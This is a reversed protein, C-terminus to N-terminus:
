NLFGRCTPAGCLCPIKDDELPFKYDYTIEENVGITQKSYIVIKKQSEITIVKAYCNPNCSHNIFRALNGCKTADIINELDIRFLYSSGIGIAEYKTERLDAISHRVMQGVYEIVMEDAAIPEMAFLGWDHIASKAFKLQKKRFKLQNFKLLDSDTDSGFATLLRRQNSRAERSLGQMKTIHPQHESPSTVAHYKAHHYKYRAKEHPAIKYYGETRACGTVHLREDKKRRKPPLSYLDTICHDVWHTDNLWYGMTDNALMDEYSKKMYEIDESDIGKTLFEYLISFESLSDRVKHFVNSHANYAPAPKPPLAEFQDMYLNQLEKFKRHEKDKPKRPKQVKAPKEKKVEEEKVTTYGHDHVLDNQMAETANEAAIENEKEPMVMCYSHEMTVQSSPSSEGTSSESLRPIKGNFDDVTTKKKQMRAELTEEDSDSHRRSEVKKEKKHKKEKKKPPDPNRVEKLIEDRKAELEELSTDLGRLEESESWDAAKARIEPTIPRLQAVEKTSTTSKPEGILKQREKQEREIQEMWETNKRRRELNELYEREGDSMDSDSDFIKSYKSDSPAVPTSSVSSSSKPQEQVVPIDDQSDTDVQMPEPTKNRAEIGDDISVRRIPSLLPEAAAVEPSKVVEPKPPLETKEPTKSRNMVKVETDSETSSDDSSSDESDSSSSSSSSSSISSTSPKRFKRPQKSKSDSDSDHVIEENDSLKRDEVDEPIPSPIKKKRFSRMKPLSARLGLGGMNSNYNLNSYLQERHNELLVNINDKSESPKEVVEVPTEEKKNLQLSQEEWWTEFKKFATNEIMKKNFDKKLIAKLEVTIKQVVSNATSFHPDDKGGESKRPAYQPMAYTPPPQLQAFAAPYQAAPAAPLYMTQVYSPYAHRWQSSYSYFSPQPYGPYPYPYAGPTPPLPPAQSSSPAPPQPPLPPNEQQNEEIKHETSSLSSLSMQDDDKDTKIENKFDMREIPSYNNEIREGTLLEDESSSIDSGLNNFEEIKVKKLLATTELAEKQRAVVAQELALRHCDLYVDLSLFPSPPVSLPSSEEDRAVEDDQDPAPPNIPMDSLSVSSRDDDDSDISTPLTLPPPLANELAAGGKDDDSDGGLTLFPPAMGGAGRDKLLLAIRTDLDLPKNDEEIQPPLPPKEKDKDRDKKSKGGNSNGISKKRERDGRREREKSHGTEAAADWKPPPALGAPLAGRGEAWSPEPAWQHPTPPMPWVPPPALPHHYAGAYNMTLPHALAYDYALPTTGASGYGSFESPATGYGIDSSSPTPYETRGGSYRNYRDRDRDKKRDFEPSLKLDKEREKSYLREDYERQKTIEEEKPKEEIKPPEEVVVPPPAPKKEATCEEFQSKCKEGFPDLFVQLQKGMVSTNNLKEVCAKAGQVSEFICRGIGLHKNSVPHYYIQLDEIVGFKQVMDRLFQKDINDNLQFITVEISPPSGVYNLDIKFRPIPLDLNELRSWIRTLHSRPDRPTVPPYTPDNPVVGEYRYLKAAGKVLFPDVLLKYNKVPKQVQNHQRDRDMNLGNM